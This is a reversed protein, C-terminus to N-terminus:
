RSSTPPSHRSIFLCYHNNCKQHEFNVVINVKNWPRRIFGVEQVSDIAKFGVIRGM